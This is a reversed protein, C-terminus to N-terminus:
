SPIAIVVMVPRDIPIYSRDNLSQFLEVRELLLMSM